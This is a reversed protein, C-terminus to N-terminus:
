NSTGYNLKLEKLDKFTAKGEHKKINHKIACKIFCYSKNCALCLWRKPMTRRTQEEMIVSKIYEEEKEEETGEIM